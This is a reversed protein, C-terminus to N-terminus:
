FDLVSQNWLMSVSPKVALKLSIYKKACRGKQGSTNNNMHLPNLSEKTFVYFRGCWVWIGTNVLIFLAFM